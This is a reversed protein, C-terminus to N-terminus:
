LRSQNITLPASHCSMNKAIGKEETSDSSFQKAKKFYDSPTSTSPRAPPVKRKKASAAAVLDKEDEVHKEHHRSTLHHILSTTSNSKASTGGELKLNATDAFLWRQTM